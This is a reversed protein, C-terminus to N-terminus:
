KHCKFIILIHMCSIHFHFFLNDTWIFAKTYVFVLACGGTLIGISDKEVLKGRAKFPTLVKIASPRAEPVLVLCQKIVVRYRDPM